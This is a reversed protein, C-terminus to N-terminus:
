FRFLMGLKITPVFTWADSKISNAELALDNASVGTGGTATLSVDPENRYYAGADITFGINKNKPLFDWGVGLYPAGVHYSLKGNLTGIQAATYSNNGITYSGVPEPTLKLESVENYYALGFTLRFVGQMPRWDLKVEPVATSQKIDYDIDDYEFETNYALGAIGFRLGLSPSLVQRAEVGFGLNSVNIGIGFEARAPAAALMAASCALMAATYTVSLKKM